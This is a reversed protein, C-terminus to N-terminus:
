DTPYGAGVRGYDAVADIVPGVARGDGVVAGLSIFAGGGDVDAIDATRGQTEAVIRLDVVVGDGGIIGGIIFAVVGQVAVTLPGRDGDSGLGIGDGAGAIEAEDPGVRGALKVTGIGEIVTGVRGKGECRRWSGTPIEVEGCRRSQRLEGGGQEQEPAQSNDAPRRGPASQGQEGETEAQGTAAASPPAARGNAGNDGRIGAAGWLREWTIGSGWPFIRDVWRQGFWGGDRTGADHCSQLGGVKFGVIQHGTVSVVPLHDGMIAAGIIMAGDVSEGGL